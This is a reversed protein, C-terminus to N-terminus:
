SALAGGRETFFRDVAIKTRTRIEAIEAKAAESRDEFQHSRGYGLLRVGAYAAYDQHDRLTALLHDRNQATLAGIRPETPEYYDLAGQMVAEYAALARGTAAHDGM